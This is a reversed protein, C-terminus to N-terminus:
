GHVKVEEVPFNENIVENAVFYKHIKIRSIQPFSNNSNPKPLHTKNTKKKKKLCILIKKLCLFSSYFVILYKM